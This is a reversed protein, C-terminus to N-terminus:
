AVTGPSQKVASKRMYWTECREELEKFINGSVYISYNHCLNSNQPKPQGHGVPKQM